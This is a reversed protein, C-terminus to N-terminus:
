LLPLLSEFVVSLSSSHTGYAIKGEVCGMGDILAVGGVATGLPLLVAVSQFHSLTLLLGFVLAQVAISSM